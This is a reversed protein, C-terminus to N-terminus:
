VHPGEIDKPKTALSKLVRAPNGAAVCDPPVDKTVISGSGIVSRDGIHVGPLVTAGTGVWVDNGIVVPKVQERDVPAIRRRRHDLSHGPNDCIFVGSGIRVNSGLEVRNAVAIVVGPGINTHNGLVLTPRDNIHAAAFTTQASIKCDDGIELRLNGEIVPFGGYLFFRQGVEEARARFLPQYFFARAAHGRMERTLQYAGFVPKLISPPIPAEARMLRLLGKKLPGFLPGQGRRLELMFPTALM